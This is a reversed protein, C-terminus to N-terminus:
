TGLYWPSSVSRLVSHGSCVVDDAALKWYM